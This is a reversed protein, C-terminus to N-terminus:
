HVHHFKRWLVVLGTITQAVTLAILGYRFPSALPPQIMTDAHIIPQNMAQNNITKDNVDPNTATAIAVDTGLEGTLECNGSGWILVNQDDYVNGCEDVSYVVLEDESDLEIEAPLEISENSYPKGLPLSTATGGTEDKSPEEIIQPLQCQANACVYGQSCDSDYRCFTDVPLTDMSDDNM